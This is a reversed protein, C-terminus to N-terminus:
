TLVESVQVIAGDRVTILVTKGKLYYEFREGDNAGFKNELQVVRDPKGAVQYLRGVTDGVTVLKNGFAVSQAWAPLALMTALVVIIASRM